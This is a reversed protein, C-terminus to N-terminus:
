NIPKIKSLTSVKHAMKYHTQIHTWFLNIGKNLCTEKYPFFLFHEFHSVQSIQLCHSFVGLIVTKPLKMDYIRIWHNSISYNKTYQRFKKSYRIWKSKRDNNLGSIFFLSSFLVVTSHMVVFKKWIKIPFLEKQRGPSEIAAHKFKVAHM